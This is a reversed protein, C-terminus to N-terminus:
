RDKGPRPRSVRRKTLPRKSSAGHDTGTAATTKENETNQTDAQLDGPERHGLPHSSHDYKEHDDFTKRNPM